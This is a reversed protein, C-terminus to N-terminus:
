ASVTSFTSAKNGQFKLFYSRGLLALVGLISRKRLNWCSFGNRGEEDPSLLVAYALDNM